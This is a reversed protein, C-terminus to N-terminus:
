SLVRGSETKRRYKNKAIRREIRPSRTFRINEKGHECCTQRGNATYSVEPEALANRTISRQIDKKNGSPGRRWGNSASARLTFRYITRRAIGVANRQRTGSARRKGFVWARPRESKSLLAVKGSKKALQLLNNIRNRNARPFHEQRLM